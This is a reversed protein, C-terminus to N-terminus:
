GAVWAAKFPVRGIDRPSFGCPKVARNSLIDKPLLIGWVYFDATDDVRISPYLPNEPVLYAADEQQSLRKVTFEGNLYAMVVSNNGPDQARDVVIIDGDSIAANKMSDGSVRVYFTAAPHAIVLENLDLPAEVYDDAPSPFGCPVRWLFLSVRYDNM